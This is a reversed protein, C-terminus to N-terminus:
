SLVERTAVPRDATPRSPFFSDSFIRDRRAGRACMAGRAAEVMAPNGCIYIDFASLNRFDQLVAEHVLGTRGTWTDDHSSLVPVYEIGRVTFERLTKDLYFGDRSRSGWYVHVPCPLPGDSLSQLIAHIPAIGTGGAVFITARPDTAYTFNGFPGCVQLVDNLKLSEFVHSTFVGGRVCGVHLEITGDGRAASAISFSRDFGDVHRIGIFQGPVFDPSDLPPFRLTLRMVDDTERVLGVVRAPVPPCETPPPEALEAVDIQLDGCAYARCLLATSGDQESPSLAPTSGAHRFDGHVKVKCSGCNGARCASPLWIGARDAANMITEDPRAEFSTGTALTVTASNASHLCLKLDMGSFYKLTFGPEHDLKRIM